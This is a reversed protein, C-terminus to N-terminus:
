NRNALQQFFSSEGAEDVRVEVSSIGRDGAFAIGGAKVTGDNDWHVADIVAETRVWAQEVWGRQQWYGRYDEGVAQLGIIRKPNKMGFRNRTYLRYPFGHEASLPEGGMDYCLLRDEALASPLPM